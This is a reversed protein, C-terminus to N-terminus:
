FLFALHPLERHPTLVESGLGERKTKPVTPCPVHPPAATSSTLSGAGREEGVFGLLFIDGSLYWRQVHSGVPREWEPALDTPSFNGFLLTLFAM